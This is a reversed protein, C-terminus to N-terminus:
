NIWQDIKAVQRVQGRSASSGRTPIEGISEGKFNIPNHETFRNLFSKIVMKERSHTVPSDTITKPLPDKHSAIIPLIRVSLKYLSVQSM